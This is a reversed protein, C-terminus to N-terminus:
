STENKFSVPTQTDIHPVEVMDFIKEDLYILDEPSDSTAFMVRNDDKANKDYEIGEISIVESAKKLNEESSKLYDRQFVIHVGTEDYDRGKASVEILMIRLVPIVVKLRAIVEDLREVPIHDIDMSITSSLPHLGALTGADNPLINYAFQKLKLKANQKKEKRYSKLLQKHAIDARLALYDKSNTVPITVKIVKEIHSAEDKVIQTKVNLVSM